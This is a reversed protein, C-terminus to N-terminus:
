QHNTPDPICFLVIDLTVAPRLRPGGCDQHHREESTPTCRKQWDAFLVIKFAVSLILPPTCPSKQAWMIGDQVSIILSMPIHCPTSCCRIINQATLSVQERM